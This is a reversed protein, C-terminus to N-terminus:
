SRAQFGFTAGRVMYDRKAIEDDTLQSESLKVYHFVEFESEPKELYFRLDTRTNEIYLDNPLPWEFEGTVNSIGRAATPTNGMGKLPGDVFQITVTEPM